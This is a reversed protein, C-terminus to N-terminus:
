ARLEVGDSMTLVIEEGDRYFAVISFGDRGPEGKEGQPGREGPKGTKGRGAWLRWADGEGPPSAPNDALAVFSSGNLMVIDHQKYAASPDYTGRVEFSRGNAGPAAIQIWDDSPPERGTDRLAQWTAGLHTVVAAEYYVGEAWAKV